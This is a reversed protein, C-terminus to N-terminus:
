ESNEEEVETESWAQGWNELDINYATVIAETETDADVLISYECNSRVLFKAM